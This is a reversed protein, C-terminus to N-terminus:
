KLIHLKRNKVYDNELKIFRSFSQNNHNVVDLNWPGALSFEIPSMCSCGDCRITHPKVKNLAKIADRFTVGPDKLNLYEKNRPRSFCLGLVGDSDIICFLKGSYCKLDCSNQIIKKQAILGKLSNSMIVGKKRQQILYDFIKLANEKEPTFEKSDGSISYHRVSQFAPIIDYKKALSLVCKIDEITTNSTVVTM